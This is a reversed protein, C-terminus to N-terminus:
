FTYTAQLYFQEADSRALPGNNIADGYFFLLYGLQVNFSKSHTYTGVFDLENGVNKDGSGTLGAGAINYIRDSSQALDFYHWQSVISLKEHPKISAQVGYDLLNQGSFNDIQGWYAHGLPYLSYFTNIDGTTPDSDGSGWYFIGGLGPKWTVDEFTYGGLAGVMGAQVDRYAASGFNDEGFQWAGEVDWNWTGVLTKGDKVPQKGALRAGLTNRRGDQLAASSDSEDFRLYYLDLNNNEIGKWTSYVGSIWRSKDVRDFSYPQPDNGSVANVSQMAFADVDWDDSTYVLKHGEFNRFTNAWGLSSLLRQGGYQLFQRGYRYKLNGDGVDGVNLEAYYQLLDTRNVDIQSPTYPADLGFMSADIAQVYGGVLDNYNAQVYPTFRWLEYSSQGPGGPRLRNKENMHRYRLEAGASYTLGDAKQNKLGKLLPEDGLVSGFLTECDLLTYEGAGCDVDEGCGPDACGESSDDDGRSTDTNPACAADESASCMGSAVLCLVLVQLSPKLMWSKLFM